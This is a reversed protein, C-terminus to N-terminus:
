QLGRKEFTKLAATRMERARDKREQYVEDSYFRIHGKFHELHVPANEIKLAKRLESPIMLRGQSDMEADGGLDNATFALVEAEESDEASNRLLTETEKWASIPYLRGIREDFSTAFVKTEGLSTLYQQFDAPLKLRGKEDIRGSYIGRPHEVAVSKVNDEV